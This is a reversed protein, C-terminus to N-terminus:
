NEIQIRKEVNHLDFGVLLIFCIINLWILVMMLSGISGYLQNYTSFNSFFYFLLKSVVLIIITALSAGSSIWKWTKRGPNGLNYLISVGVIMFFLMAMWSLIDYIIQMAMNLNKYFMKDVVTETYYMLSLIIIMFFTMLLFIGLSIARHKIPNRKAKVVFSENFVSLLYSVGESAYYITLVFGASLALPQKNMVLDNITKEIIVYIEDPTFNAIDNMLNDQFNLIPIYPILSLFFLIGPILALFFKFAIAASRIGFSNKRFCEILYQIVEYLSMGDFGPPRFNKGWRLITQIFSISLIKSKIKQFLSLKM